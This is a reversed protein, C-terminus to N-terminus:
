PQLTAELIGLNSSARIHIQNRDVSRRDLSWRKVEEPLLYAQEQQSVIPDGDASEIRIAELHLHATGQNALEVVPGQRTEIISWVPRALADAPTVFVPLSYRFNFAVGGSPGQGTPVETLILRYTKELGGTIPERLGLRVVQRGGAPVEFVVPVAILENTSMTEMAPLAATWALTDVQFLSPTDSDNVVTLSAAKGKVSLKTPSLTVAGAAWVAAPQFGLFALSLGVAVIWARMM